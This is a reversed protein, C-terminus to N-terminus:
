ATEPDRSQTGIKLVYRLEIVCDRSRTSCTCMSMRSIAYTCSRPDVLSLVTAPIATTELVTMGLAVKHQTNTVALSPVIFSYYFCELNYMDNGLESIPHHVIFCKRNADDGLELIRHYPAILESRLSVSTIQTM